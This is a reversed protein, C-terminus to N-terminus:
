PLTFELINQDEAADDSSANSLLVASDRAIRAPNRAPTHAHETLKTSRIGAGIANAIQEYALMLELELAFLAHGFVDKKHALPLLVFAKGGGIQPLLARPLISRADFQADQLSVLEGDQTRAALLQACQPAGDRYLVIFYENLGLYPLRESIVRRLEPVDVVGSLNNCAASIDRASRGLRLQARAMERQVIESLALQTRYFVEDARNRRQPESNLAASLQRRLCDLVDYCPQISAGRTVLKEAINEMLEFLTDSQETSLDLTLSNLLRAQWDAGAVGLEGRAVRTLKTLIHQRRMILAADFSGNVSPYISHPVRASQGSCGCSRRIVVETPIM